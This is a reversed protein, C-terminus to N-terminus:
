STSSRSPFGSLRCAFNGESEHVNSAHDNSLHVCAWIDVFPADNIKM